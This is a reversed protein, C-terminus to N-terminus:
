WRFVKIDCGGKNDLKKEDRSCCIIFRQQLPQDKFVVSLTKLLKKDMFFRSPNTMGQALYDKTKLRRRVIVFGKRLLQELLPV